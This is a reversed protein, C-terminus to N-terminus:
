SDARGILSGVSSCAGSDVSARAGAGSTPGSASVTHTTSSSAAFRWDRSVMKLRSAMRTRPAGPALRASSSHRLCRTCTTTVSRMIGPVEPRSRKRASLCTEGSVWTTSMVAYPVTSVATAAIFSPANSKTSFGRFRLWITFLTRSAPACWLSSASFRARLFCISTRVCRSITPVEIASRRTRSVIACAAGEIAVTSTSPSLPM